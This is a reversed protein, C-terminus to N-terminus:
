SLVAIMVVNVFNQWEIMNAIEEGACGLDPKLIMRGYTSVDGLHDGGYFIQALFILSNRTERFHGAHWTFDM